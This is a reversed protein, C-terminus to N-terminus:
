QQTDKLVQKIYESLPLKAHKAQKKTTALLRKDEESQFSLTVQKISAEENERAIAQRYLEVSDMLDQIYDIRPDENNIIRDLKGNRSRKAFRRSESRSKIYFNYDKNDHIWNDRAHSQAQTTRPM